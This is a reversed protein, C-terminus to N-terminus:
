VKTTIILKFIVCFYLIFTVEKLEASTIVDFDKPTRKLILDRVCGGVLYVDYGVLLSFFFPTGSKAAASCEWDLIFYFM